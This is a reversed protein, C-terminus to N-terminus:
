LHGFSKYSKALDLNVFINMRLNDAFVKQQCGEKAQGGNAIHCRKSEEVLVVCEFSM